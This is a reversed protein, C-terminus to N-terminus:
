NCFFKKWNWKIKPHSSLLMCVFIRWFGNPSVHCFYAIFIKLKWWLVDLQLFIVFESLLDSLQPKKKKLIMSVVYSIYKPYHQKFLGRIFTYSVGPNQKTKTKIAKCLNGLWADTKVEIITNWLSILLCDTNVHNLIHIIKNRTQLDTIKPWYYFQLIYQM